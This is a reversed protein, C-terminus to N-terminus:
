SRGALDVAQRVFGGAQTLLQAARDADTGALLMVIAVKARNGAEALARAAEEATCGSALMVIRRARDVLKENSPVLDVMLNSYAKGLRIMVATSIMNLVLKQATGAKLRTSGLLVEPGVEPCISIGAITTLLSGPNCVVAVTAAGRENAERLAGAVYPTRGSAALGVVVDAAGIGREKIDAAGLEPSDEAGEIAHRLARDGGAIIGQVLEPSVGFTPPCESADLVGLRGSTGAGVYFLRGGARLREVTINVVQAIKPLELGVAEPVKRDETNMATLIDLASRQDLDLYPSRSETTLAGLNEM